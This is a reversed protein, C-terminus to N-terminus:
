ASRAGSAAGPASAAAWVSVEAAVAQLRALRLAGTKTADIGQGLARRHVGLDTWISAAWRTEDWPQLAITATPFQGLTLAIEDALRADPEPVNMAARWLSAKDPVTAFVAGTSMGAAKAIDRITAREYGVTDFMAAAASLIRARTAAKAQQRRNLRPAEAPAADTM